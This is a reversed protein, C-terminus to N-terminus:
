KTDNLCTLLHSVTVRVSILGGSISIEEIHTFSISSFKTSYIRTKVSEYKFTFLDWVYRRLRIVRYVMIYLNLYEKVTQYSTKGVRYFTLSTMVFNVSRLSTTTTMFWLM